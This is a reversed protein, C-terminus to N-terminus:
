KRFSSTFIDQNTPTQGKAAKGDYLVSMEEPTVWFCNHEERALLEIYVCRQPGTMEKPEKGAKPAIKPLGAGKSDIFKAFANMVSTSNEGTDCVVPEFKKGSKDLKRKPTTGDM